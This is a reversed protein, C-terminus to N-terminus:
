NWWSSTSAEELCFGSLRNRARADGGGGGHAHVTNKPVACHHLLLAVCGVAGASISFATILIPRSVPLILDIRLSRCSACLALALHNPSALIHFLGVEVVSAFGANDVLNENEFSDFDALSLGPSRHDYLERGLLPQTWDPGDATANWHVWETYRYLDTRVSHGM